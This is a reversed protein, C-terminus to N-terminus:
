LSLHFTRIVLVCIAASMSVVLAFQEALRFPLEAGM